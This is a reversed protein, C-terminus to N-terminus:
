VKEFTMIENVKHVHNINFINGLISAYFLTYVSPHVNLRRSSTKFLTVIQAFVKKFPPAFTIM